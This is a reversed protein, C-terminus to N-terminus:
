LSVWEMIVRFGAPQFYAPLWRWHTVSWIGGTFQRRNELMKWDRVSPSFANVCPQRPMDSPVRCGHESHAERQLFVLM